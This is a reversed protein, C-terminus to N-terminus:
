LRIRCGMWYSSRSLIVFVLSLMMHAGDRSFREEPNGVLYSMFRGEASALYLSSIESMSVLPIISDLCSVVFASIQSRPHAPQDACKNKAYPM